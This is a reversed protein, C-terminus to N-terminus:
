VLAFGVTYRTDVSGSFDRHVVWQVERHFRVAAELTPLLDSIHLGLDRQVTSTAPSRLRTARRGRACAVRSWCSWRNSRVVLTELLDPFRSKALLYSSHISFTPNRCLQHLTPRARPM